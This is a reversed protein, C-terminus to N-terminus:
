RGSAGGNRVRVKELRQPITDIFRNILEISIENEWVEIMAKKLDELTWGGHPNRNRLKQKLVRWINEIPNLDPSRLPWEISKTHCEVRVVNCLGHNRATDTKGHVRSNDEVCFFDGPQEFIEKMPGRLIQNAYKEQTFGKGEGEFSVFYLKSKYNYGIAAWAM